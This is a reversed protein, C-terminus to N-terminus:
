AAREIDVRLGLSRLRSWAAGRPVRLRLALELDGFGLESLIRVEDEPMLLCAAFEDAYRDDPDQGSAEARLSRLDAREYVRTEPSLRVYYGLELACTMRRRLLGDHENLVITPDRDPRVLLGGLVDRDLDAELGRLGLREAIDAPYVPPPLRLTEKLIREADRKAEKRIRDKMADVEVAAGWARSVKTVGRPPATQSVTASM